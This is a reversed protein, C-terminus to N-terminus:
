LQKLQEKFLARSDEIVAQKEAELDLSGKLAEVDVKFNAAALNQLAAELEIVERRNDKDGVFRGLLLDNLL